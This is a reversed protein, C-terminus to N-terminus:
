ARPPALRHEYAARDILLAYDTARISTFVFAQGHTVALADAARVADAQSGFRQNLHAGHLMYELITM